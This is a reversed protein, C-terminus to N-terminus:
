RKAAQFLTRMTPAPPTNILSTTLAGIALLLATMAALAHLRRASRRDQGVVRLEVLTILVAPVAFLLYLTLSAVDFPGRWANGATTPIVVHSLVYSGVGIALPGLSLSIASTGKRIWGPTRSGDFLIRLDGLLLAAVALLPLAVLVLPNVPQNIDALCLLHSDDTVGKPCDGEGPALAGVAALGASFLLATVIPLARGGALDTNAPAM